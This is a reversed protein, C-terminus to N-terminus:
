ETFLALPLEFGPLVDEGSLVGSFDAAEIPARGPRYSWARRDIPDILFALRVGAELWEDMKSQLEKLRDSPSRIELVFDPTIHAFRPRDFVDVKEWREKLIWAADAARVAKSPLTFGASAGFTKGLGTRRNWIMLEGGADLEQSGGYSGTPEMLLINGHRDREMPIEPNATCFDFFEDETMSPYPLNVKRYDDVILKM